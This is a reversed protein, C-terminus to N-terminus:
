GLSPSISENLELLEKCTSNFDDCGQYLYSNTSNSTLIYDDTVGMLMELDQLMLLKDNGAEAIWGILSDILDERYIISYEHLEKDAIKKVMNNM